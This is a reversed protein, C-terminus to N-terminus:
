RVVEPASVKLTVNILGPNGPVPVLSCQEIGIYPSKSLLSLYFKSLSSWEARDFRVTRVHVNFQDTQDTQQDGTRPTLGAESALGVVVANLATDDLTKSPDLRAATKKAAEEISTRNDLWQQQLKLQNTTSRAQTNFSLARRNFSTFWVAAILLVFTLLLLKESFKIQLFLARLSRM